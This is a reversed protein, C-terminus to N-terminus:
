RGKKAAVPAAGGKLAAGGKSLGWMISKVVLGGILTTLISYKNTGVYLTGSPWDFSIANLQAAIDPQAAPAAPAVPIAGFGAVVPNHRLARTGGPAYHKFRGLGCVMGAPCNNLENAIQMQQQASIPGTPVQVPQVWAPPQATQIQAVVAPSALPPYQVTGTAITRPPYTVLGGGTNPPASHPITTGQTHRQMVPAVIRRTLQQVQRFPNWRGLGNFVSAADQYGTDGGGSNDGTSGDSSSPLPANNAPNVSAPLNSVSYVPAAPQVSAVSGYNPNSPDMSFPGPTNVTAVAGPATTATAASPSAQYGQAAWQTMLQQYQAATIPNGASDTYSQVGQNYSATPKGKTLAQAIEAPKMVASYASGVAKQVASAVSKFPNGIHFRGLAEGMPMGAFYPPPPDTFDGRAHRALTAKPHPVKNVKPKASGLGNLLGRKSILYSRMDAVTLGHANLLRMAGSTDGAGSWVAATALVNAITPQPTVYPM